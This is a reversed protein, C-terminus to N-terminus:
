GRRRRSWRWPRGHGARSGGRPRRRHAVRPCRGPGRGSRGQAPAKPPLLRKLRSARLRPLRKLRSARLRPLRKLRSARLRPLRWTMAPTLSSMLLPNFNSVGAPRPPRVGCRGFRPPTAPLASPALGKSTYTQPSGGLCDVLLAGFPSWRHQFLRRGEGPWFPGGIISCGAGRVRGFLAGGINSCGAGRV